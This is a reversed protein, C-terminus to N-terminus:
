FFTCIVIYRILSPPFYLLLYLFLLFFLSLSPSHTACPRPDSLNVFSVSIRAVPRKDSTEYFSLLSLPSLLLSLSLLPPAAREARSVPAAEPNRSLRRSCRYSKPDYRSGALFLPVCLCVHAGMYM